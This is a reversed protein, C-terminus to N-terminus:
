KIVEVLVVGLNKGSVYAVVLDFNNRLFDVFDDGKVNSDVVKIIGWYTSVANPTKGFHKKSALMALDIRHAYKYPITLQPQSLEDLLGSVAKIVDGKPVYFTGDNTEIGFNLENKFKLLREEKSM